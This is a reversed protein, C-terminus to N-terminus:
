WTADLVGQLLYHFRGLHVWGGMIDAQLLLYRGSGDATLSAYSFGTSKLIGVLRAAKDYLVKVPRGGPVSFQVVYPHLGRRVLVTLRDPRVMLVQLIRPYRATGHLLVQGDSLRTSRTAEPIQRVQSVPQGYNNGNRNECVVNSGFGALDPLCWQAVYILSEGNPSWTVSPISFQRHPRTLGGQILTRAGTRLDVVFIKAPKLAWDLPSSPAPTGAVAVHKMDPSVALAINVLGPLDGGRVARFDIIRGAKTLGFMFLGTRRQRVKNFTGVFLRDGASALASPESHVWANKGTYYWGQPAHM